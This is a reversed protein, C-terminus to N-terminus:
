YRNWSFSPSFALKSRFATALVPLAKIQNWNSSVEAPSSTPKVVSSVPSSLVTDPNDPIPQTSSFPTYVNPYTFVKVYSASLGVSGSSGVSGSLGLSGDSGLSGSSGISM